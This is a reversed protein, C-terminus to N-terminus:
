ENFFSNIKTNLRGVNNTLSESDELHLFDFKQYGFKENNQELFETEVFKKKKIFSQDNAFGEGKTEIILAKHIKNEKTRNLILFDTTYKGVNWSVNFNIIKYEAM